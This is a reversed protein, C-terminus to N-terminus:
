EVEPYTTIFDPLKWTINVSTKDITNYEYTCILTLNSNSKIVQETVAPIMELSEADSHVVLLLAFTLGKFFMQLESDVPSV